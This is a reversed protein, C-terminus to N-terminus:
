ESMSAAADCACIHCRAYLGAPLHQKVALGSWSAYNLLEKWVRFPLGQSDVVTENTWCQQATGYQLSGAIGFTVTVDAVERM